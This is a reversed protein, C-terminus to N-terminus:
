KRDTSPDITSKAYSQSVDRDPKAAEALAVRDAFALLVVRYAFVDRRGCRTREEAHRRAPEACRGSDPRQAVDRVLDPAALDHADNSAIAGALRCQQLDQRADRRGGFPFRFDVATDSRQELDARSKMGIECAAFVNKQVARDEAHSLGLALSLELLDDVERLNAFGDVPGDLM